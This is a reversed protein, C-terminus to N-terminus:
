IFKIALAIISMCRNFFYDYYRNDNIDIRDTEHHRIRFQNGIDTLHKFEDCFLTRYNSNGMSMKEIVNNVSRKKDIGDKMYITKLRELADWVKETALRHNSPKASKYLDIAELLLEKVGQDPLEKCSEKVENVLYDAETIREIQRKKSLRYILGTMTFIENIDSRYKEFDKYSESFSLHHHNSFKHYCGRVITKMTQAIYEIFDLLAYQDYDDTDEPILLNNKSNFLSPIRYKLFTYLADVDVGCIVNDGIYNEPCFDPYKHGLNDLYDECRDLLLRYVEATIIDTTKIEKRLGNRESFLEAM